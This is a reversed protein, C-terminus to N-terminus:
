DPTHHKRMAIIEDRLNAAWKRRDRGHATQAPGASLQVELQPTRVTRWLSGIFSDQGCYAPAQSPSGTLGDFYSLAFPQIPCDSAIAAQLLNAHFPLVAHGDSSTGEPFVVLVEGRALQQAMHHVVRMADRRLNREIFLTGAGATLRGILPWGRVDAKAVFRCQGVAFIVLIDLWSIHNCVILVPGTALGGGNVRLRVGLVSLLQRSVQQVLQKKQVDTWGPFCWVLIWAARTLHLAVKLLIVIARLFKISSDVALSVVRRLGIVHQSTASSYM